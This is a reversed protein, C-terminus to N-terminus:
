VRSRVDSSSLSMVYKSLNHHAWVVPLGRAVRRYRAVGFWKAFECFQWVTLDCGVSVWGFCLMRCDTVCSCVIQSCSVGSYLRGLVGYVRFLCLERCFLALFLGCGCAFLCHSPVPVVITCGRCVLKSIAGLFGPVVDLFMVLIHVGAVIAFNDSCNPAFRVFNVGSCVFSCFRHFLWLAGRFLSPSVTPFSMSCLFTVHLCLVGPLQIGFSALCLSCDPQTKRCNVLVLCVVIWRLM